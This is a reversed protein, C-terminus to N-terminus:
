TPFDNAGPGSFTFSIHGHQDPLTCRTCEAYIFISDGMYPQNTTLPAAQRSIADVIHPHCPGVSAVNNYADLYRNGDSDFLCPGDGRVMHIPKEYFLRYAPGLLARRREILALTSGDVESGGSYANLMGASDRIM